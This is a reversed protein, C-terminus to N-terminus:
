PAREQTGPAWALAFASLGNALGRSLDGTARQESLVASAFAALDAQPLACLVRRLDALRPAPHLPFPIIQAM